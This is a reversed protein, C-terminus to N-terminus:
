YIKYFIKDPLYAMIYAEFESFIKLIPTACTLGKYGRTIQSAHVNEHRITHLDGERVTIIIDGQEDVTTTGATVYGSDKLIQKGDESCVSAVSLYSPYVIVRFMVLSLFFM